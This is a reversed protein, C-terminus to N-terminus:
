KMIELLNIRLINKAMSNYSEFAIKGAAGIDERLSKDSVLLSIANRIESLDEPRKIIIKEIEKVGRVFPAVESCVVPIGFFMHEAATYNFSESLTVAMAFDMAKITSLYQERDGIWGHNVLNETSLSAVVPYMQGVNNGYNVHLSVKDKFSSLAFIQALINKRPNAACFLDCNINDRRIENKPKINELEKTDLYIPILKVKNNLKSLCDVDSELGMGIYDIKDTMSLHWADVFQPIEGGLEVQTVPSCWKVMVKCERPTNHVLMKIANDWGGYVVFDPPNQKIRKILDIGVGGKGIFVKEINSSQNTEKLVSEINNLCNVVGPWYDRTVLLIKKDM